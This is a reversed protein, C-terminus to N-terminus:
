LAFSGFSFFSYVPDVRGFTDSTLHLAQPASIAMCIKSQQRLPQIKKTKEM